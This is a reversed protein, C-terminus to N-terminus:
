SNQVGFHRLQEIFGLRLFQLWQFCAQFANVFFQPINFIADAVALPLAIESRSKDFKGAGDVEGIVLARLNFFVNVHCKTRFEHFFLGVLAVALYVSASLGQLPAWPKWSRSEM